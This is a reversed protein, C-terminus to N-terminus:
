AGYGFDNKTVGIFTHSYYVEIKNLYNEDFRIIVDEDPNFTYPIEAVKTKEAYDYVVEGNWNVVSGKVNYPLIVHNDATAAIGGPCDDIMNKNGDNAIM